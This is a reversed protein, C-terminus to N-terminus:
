ENSTKEADFLQQRLQVTRTALRLEYGTDTQEFEFPVRREKLAMFVTVIERHAEFTNETAVAVFYNAPNQLLGILIELAIKEQENSLKTLGALPWDSARSMIFGHQHDIVGNPRGALPTRKINGHSAM